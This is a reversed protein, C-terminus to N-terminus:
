ETADKDIVDWPTIIRREKKKEEKEERQEENLQAERVSEESFTEPKIELENEDPNIKARRIDEDTIHDNKDRLHKHVKESISKDQPTNCTADNHEDRKTYKM